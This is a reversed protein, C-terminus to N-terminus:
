APTSGDVPLVGGTDGPCTNVSVVAARPFFNFESASAWTYAGMSRGVISSRTSSGNHSESTVSANLSDGGIASSSSPGAPGVLPMMARVCLPRSPLPSVSSRSRTASVAIRRAPDANGGAM